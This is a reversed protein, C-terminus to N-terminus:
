QYELTKMMKKYTQENRWQETDDRLLRRIHIVGRQNKRRENWQDSFHVWEKNDYNRNSRNKKMTSQIASKEQQQITTMSERISPHSDHFVQELITETDDSRLMLRKNQLQYIKDGWEEVLERTPVQVHSNDRIKQVAQKLPDEKEEDFHIGLEEDTPRENFRRQHPNALIKKLAQEFARERNQTPFKEQITGLSEQLSLLKELSVNAHQKRKPALDLEEIQRLITNGLRTYLIKKKNESSTRNDGFAAQEELAIKEQRVNIENILEPYNEMLFSDILLDLEEKFEFKESFGYKRYGKQLPLKQILNQMQKEFSHYFTQANIERLGNIMQKNLQSLQEREKQLGLLHNAFASKMQRFTKRSRYGKREVVTEGTEKDIYEMWPRTPEPEVTAVHVHINDTNYHISATWIASFTLGEKELMTTMGLRTAEQIKNEDLAGTLANLYGYEILWENRFSFVDQWMCSGNEAALQFTKKLEEVENKSLQNKTLTFLSSTKSPNAMYHVYGDLQEANDGEYIPSSNESNIFSSYKEYGSNRVAEERDMYNIYSEFSASKPRTFKGTMIIGPSTM